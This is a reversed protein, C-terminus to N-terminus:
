GKLIKHLLFYPWLALCVLIVIAEVFNDSFYGGVRDNINSKKPLKNRTAALFIVGM